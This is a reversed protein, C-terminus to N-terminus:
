VFYTRIRYVEPSTNATPVLVVKPEFVQGEAGIRFVATKGGAVSYSDNGDATKAQVFDGYKNIRYWFQVSTGDPLASFYLEATDWKTINIPKKIPAKFDLGEYYGVAKAVPDVSRVGFDTGDRYSALIVGDVVTLAGIEDVDMAFDLNLTFPANKNKRGYSYVGNKGSTAGFIGFLALNGVAQKDIWSLASQEWEFFNAQEVLNAVGGPNVKGGGPFRKAPMTDNMDAFFLEGDDGIQALPVESDIAGNVGKTPDSARVTGIISRGNREVITKAINGPILAVAENTFSEDYGVLAMTPGNCIILSGGAERQTHWDASTLNGVIEVDNWGAVDLNKRKQLTDTAFHLYTGGSDSYWEYAGKIAGNLDKYVQTTVGDSDRRYVYGTDGFGYTYGDSAKVFFVILDQFVTSLGSTPSPSPSVSSSVSVSASPSASASPSLSPSDSIGTTGSPSRSSSSSPSVSASASATNSPSASPSTSSSPSVSASPSFPSALLGEEILAQECTLSDVTKRIDLGSGFKFAGTIGRDEFDSIGGNFRTIEYVAM